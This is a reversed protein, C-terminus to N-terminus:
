PWPNVSKRTFRWNGPMVFKGTADIVRVGEMEKIDPAVIQIKGDKIYVDAIQQHDANVVTGGKILIKPSKQACEFNESGVLCIEEDGNGGVAAVNQIGVTITCLLLLMMMITRMGSTGM